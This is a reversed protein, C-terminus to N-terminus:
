WIKPKLSAPLYLPHAPEGSVNQKLCFLGHLFARVSKSRGLYKGDNGWCAVILDAEKTLKILWEDNVPGIPDQAAKMDAPETARYAFLNTM